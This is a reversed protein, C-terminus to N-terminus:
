ICLLRWVTGKGAEKLIHCVRGSENDAVRNPVALFSARHIHKISESCKPVTIFSLPIFGISEPVIDFTPSQIHRPPQRNVGHHLRSASELSACSIGLFGLTGLVGLVGGLLELCDLLPLRPQFEPLDSRTHM